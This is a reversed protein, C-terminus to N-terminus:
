RGKCNDELFQRNKAVMDFSQNQNLTRESPIQVVVGGQQMWQQGAQINKRVRACDDALNRAQVSHPVLTPQQIAWVAGQPQQPESGARRETQRRAEASVQEAKEKAQKYKQTEFFEDIWGKHWAYGVFLIFGVIFAKQM